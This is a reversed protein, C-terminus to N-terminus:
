LENYSDNIILYFSNVIVFLTVSELFASFLFDGFADLFISLNCILVSVVVISFLFKLYRFIGIQRIISFIIRLDFADAFNNSKISVVRGMFGFSSFVILFLISLLMNLQISHNLNIQMSVPLQHVLEHLTIISHNIDLKSIYYQIEYLKSFFGLRISLLSSLFFSILIYYMSILYEHIAEFFNQKFNLEPREEEVAANALSLIIGFIILDVFFGIIIVIWSLYGLNVSLFINNSEEFIMFLFFVAFFLKYRKIPLKLSEVIIEHVRM